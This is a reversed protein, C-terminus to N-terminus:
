QQIVAGQGYLLAAGNVKSIIRRMRVRRLNTAAARAPHPRVGSIVITTRSPMQANMVIKRVYKAEKKKRFFDRM